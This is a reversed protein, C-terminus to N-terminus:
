RACGGSCGGGCGGGGGSGCSGGCGRVGNSGCGGRLASSPEGSAVLEYGLERLRRLGARAPAGATVPSDCALCRLVGEPHLADDAPDLYALAERGCALCEVVPFTAREVELRALSM